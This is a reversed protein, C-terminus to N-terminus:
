LTMLLCLHSIDVVTELSFGSLLGGSVVVSIMRGLGEMV